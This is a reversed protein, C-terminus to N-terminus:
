LEVWTLESSSDRSGTVTESASPAATIQSTPPTSM